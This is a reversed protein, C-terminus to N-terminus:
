LALMCFYTLINSKQRDRGRKQEANDIRDIVM